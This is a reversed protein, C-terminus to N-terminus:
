QTNAKAIKLNVRASLELSNKQDGTEGYTRGETQRYIKVNWSRRWIWQALKLWVQCLDDKPSPIRYKGSLKRIHHLNMKTWIMTGSPQSPCCFPFGYIL